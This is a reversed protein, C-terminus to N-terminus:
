PWRKKKRKPEDKRCGQGVRCRYSANGCRSLYVRAQTRPNPMIRGCSFCVPHSDVTYPFRGTGDRDAYAFGM